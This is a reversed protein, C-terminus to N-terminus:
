LNYLLVAGKTGKKKKKKEKQGRRTAIKEPSSYSLFCLLAEELITVELPVTRSFSLSLSTLNKGFGDHCAKIRAQRKTSRTKTLGLKALRLKTRSDKISGLIIDWTM